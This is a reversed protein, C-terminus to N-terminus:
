YRHKPEWSKKPLLDFLHWLACFKDGPGFPAKGTRFIKGQKDRIFASVGPYPDKKREFGMDKSFSSGISSVMKFQWKRSKRFKDQIKPDDPSVVVFAARNELHHIVGNFGDAWLTCYPCLVGMNHILILEHKRGFLHSLSIQKGKHDKFFYDKVERKAKKAM